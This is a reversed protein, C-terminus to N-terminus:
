LYFELEKKSEIDTKEWHTHSHLDALFKLDEFYYDLKM